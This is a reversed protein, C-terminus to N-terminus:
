QKKPVPRRVPAAATCPTVKLGELKTKDTDMTLLFPEKAFASPVGEWQFESNVEPKGTLPQPKNDADLLKLSIEATYPAKADPLPVAVLLETPKCAPKADVLIGKLKPVAANKLSSDFYQEGNTDTLAGKIKMWMSLQPNSKEFEAEKEADIETTTKIHFGAPPMPSALAQQKLQDLGEDSGHLRNYIKTLYAEVAARTKPDAIGGKAPDLAVGRAIEYIGASVKAPNTAQQAVEAAGLQYATQGSDPFQQLAKAFAAEAAPYDKKQMADAGPKTAMYLLVGKAMTQMQDRAKAWDADSAGEPKTNYDMLAHAAKDGIALEEPTPNPAQAIAQVTTGLVTLQQGPGYKPDDFIKALDRDILPGATDVVKGYQALGAYAQIYYVERDDKFDSGPYKQKWGDLDAVAQKWDKAQADKIVKGYLDAETNDKYNKKAPASQARGFHTTGAALVIMAAAATASLFTNLFKHV